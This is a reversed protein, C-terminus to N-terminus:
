EGLYTNRIIDGFFDEIVERSEALSLIEAMGVFLNTITDLDLPSTIGKKSPCWEGDFDLFYERLGLYEVGRFRSVSLRLQTYASENIIKTYPEDEDM